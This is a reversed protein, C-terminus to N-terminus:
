WGSLQGRFALYRRMGNLCTRAELTVGDRMMTALLYACTRGSDARIGSGLGRNRSVGMKVGIGQCMGATSFPGSCSIVGRRMSVPGYDPESLFLDQFFLGLNEYRDRSALRTRSSFLFM